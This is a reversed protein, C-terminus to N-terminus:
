SFMKVANSAWILTILSGFCWWIFYWWCLIFFLIVMEIYIVKFAKLLHKASYIEVYITTKGIVGSKKIESILYWCINLNWQKMPFFLHFIKSSTISTCMQRCLWWFFNFSKGAMASTHGCDNVPFFWNRNKLLKKRANFFM